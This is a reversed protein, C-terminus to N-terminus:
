SRDKSEAFSEMMAAERQRVGEVLGLLREPEEIPVVLLGDGDGHLLDGSRIRLGTVEVEVGVDCITHSGHSVVTGAAFAWLGLADLEPLDRLGANSVFGVTGKSGFATGMVGGAHCGRLPDPGVEQFVVVTPGPQSTIAEIVRPVGTDGGGRPLPSTSDITVTVAFGVMAAPQAVLCRLRLDAYGENRPRVDLEEVANSVTASDCARLAGVVGPPEMGTDMM